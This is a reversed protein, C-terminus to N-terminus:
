SKRTACFSLAFVMVFSIAGSTIAYSLAGCRLWKLMASSQISAGVFYAGHRLGVDVGYVSRACQQSAPLQVLCQARQLARVLRVKPHGPQHHQTGHTVVFGGHLFCLGHQTHLWPM